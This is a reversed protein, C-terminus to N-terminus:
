AEVSAEVERIYRDYSDIRKQVGEIEREVRPNPSNDLLNKLHILRLEMVVKKDKAANYRKAEFDALMLRLHYIPNGVFNTILSTKRFPDIQAPSFMSSIARQNQPSVFVDPLDELLKEMDKPPVGFDALLRVYREISSLIYKTRAPPIETASAEHTKSDTESELLFDLIDLTFRSIFSIASASRILHAVRSTVGDRLTDQQVHVEVAKQITVLNARANQLLTHLDFLYNAAKSRFKIEGYIEAQLNKSALSTFPHVRYMEAVSHAMPIVQNDLEKLTAEIDKQVVPKSIRPALSQIYTLFNM